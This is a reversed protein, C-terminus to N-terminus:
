SGTHTAGVAERVTTHLNDTGVADIAGARRGLDLIEADVRALAWVIGRAGLEGALQVIM